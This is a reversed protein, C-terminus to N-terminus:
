IIEKRCLPCNNRLGLSLDHSDIPTTRHKHLCNWHFYHSCSLQCLNLETGTLSELCISCSDSVINSKDDNLFIVPIESLEDILSQLSYNEEEEEDSENIILSDINQVVLSIVYNHEAATRINQKKIYGIFYSLLKYMFAKHENEYNYSTSVFFTNRYEIVLLFVEMLFLSKYDRVLNCRPDGSYMHFIYYTSQRILFTNLVYDNVRDEDIILKCIDKLQETFYDKNYYEAVEKIKLIIKKSPKVFMIHHNVDKILTLVPHPKDAVKNLITHTYQGLLNLYSIVKNHIYYYDFSGVIVDPTYHTRMLIRYRILSSIIARKTKHNYYALNHLLNQTVLDYLEAIHFDRKLLEFSESMTSMTSLCITNVWNPNVRLHINM